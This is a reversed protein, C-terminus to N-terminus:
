NYYRKIVFGFRQGFQISPNLAHHVLVSESVFDNKHIIAAGVLRPLDDFLKVGVIGGLHLADLEAAVVALAGGEEATEATGLAVHDDRHIGVKLIRGIFDGFEIPHNDLVAVVEDATILLLTVVGERLGYGGLEKVSRGTLDASDVVEVIEVTAKFAVTAIDDLADFDITLHM